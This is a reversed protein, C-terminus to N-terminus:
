RRGTRPPSPCKGSPHHCNGVNGTYLDNDRMDLVPSNGTVIRLDNLVVLTKAAIQGAPVAPINHSQSTVTITRNGSAVAHINLNHFPATSNINFNVSM